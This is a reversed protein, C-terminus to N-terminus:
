VLILDLVCFNISGERAKHARFFRLWGQPLIVADLTDSRDWDRNESPMKRAKKYKIISCPDTPNHWLHIRGGKQIRRRIGGIKVTDAIGKYRISGEITKSNKDKPRYQPHHPTQHASQPCKIRKSSFVGTSPAPRRRRWIYIQNLSGLFCRSVLLSQFVPM